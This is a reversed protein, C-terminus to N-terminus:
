EALWFYYYPFTRVQFEGDQVFFSSPSDTDTLVWSTFQQQGMIQSLAILVDNENNNTPLVEGHGLVVHGNRKPLSRNQRTNMLLIDAQFLRLGLLTDQFAPHYQIYYSNKSDPGDGFLSTAATFDSDAFHVIPILLWDAIKPRLTTAGVKVVFRTGDSAAQDYSLTIAKAEIETDPNAVQEFSVGGVKGVFNYSNLSSPGASRVKLPPNPKSETTLQIEGITWSADPEAEQEEPEDSDLLDQRERNETRAVLLAPPPFTEVGTEPLMGHDFSVLDRDSYLGQSNGFSWSLGCAFSLALLIVLVMGLKRMDAGKRKVVRQSFSLQILSSVSESSSAKITAVSAYSDLVGSPNKNHSASDPIILRLSFQVSFLCHVERCDM